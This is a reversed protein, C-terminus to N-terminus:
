GKRLLWLAKNVGNGWTLTGTRRRVVSKDVFLQIIVNWGGSRNFFCMSHVCYPIFHLSKIVELGTLAAQSVNPLPVNDRLLGYCTLSILELESSNVSM